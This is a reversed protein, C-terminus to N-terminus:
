IDNKIILLKKYSGDKIIESLGSNFIESIISADLRKSKKSFLIHVNEKKIHKKFSLIKSKFTKNSELIYNIAERNAVMLDIRGQVLKNINIFNSTAVQKTLYAANDFECGYSAGRIHGIKYSVLDSLDEFKINSGTRKWLGISLEAIKNSFTYDHARENTYYGGLIGDYIGMKTMEIARNWPMFLIKLEFGKRKFAERAIRAYPGGGEINRSIFPSWNSAVLTIRKAEIAKSKPCLLTTSLLTVLFITNKINKIIRLNYLDLFM